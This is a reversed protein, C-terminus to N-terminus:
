NEFSNKSHKLCMQNTEFRYFLFHRSTELDRRLSYESGMSQFIKKSNLFMIKSSFNDLFSLQALLMGFVTKSVLTLVLSVVHVEIEYFVRQDREWAV